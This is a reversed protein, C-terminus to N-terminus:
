ILMGKAHTKLTPNYSISNTNQITQSITTSSFHTNKASIQVMRGSAMTAVLGPILLAALALIVMIATWIKM